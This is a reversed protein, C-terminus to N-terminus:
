DHCIVDNCGGYIDMCNISDEDVNEHHLGYECFEEAEDRTEAEVQVTFTAESHFLVTYTYTSV